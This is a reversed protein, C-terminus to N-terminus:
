FAVAVDFSNRLREAMREAEKITRTRDILVVYRDRLLDQVLRDRAGGGPSGAIVAVKRQMADIDRPTM